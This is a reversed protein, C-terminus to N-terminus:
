DGKKGVLLDLAACIAALALCQDEAVSLLVHTAGNASPKGEQTHRLTEAQAIMRYGRETLTKVAAEDEELNAMLQDFELSVVQEAGHDRLVEPLATSGDRRAAGMYPRVEGRLM